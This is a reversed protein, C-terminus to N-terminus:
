RKALLKNANTVNFLGKHHFTTKLVIDVTTQNCDSKRVTAYDASRFTLEVRRNM